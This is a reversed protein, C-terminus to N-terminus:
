KEDRAFVTEAWAMVEDSVDAETCKRTMTHCPWDCGLACRQEAKEVDINCIICYAV